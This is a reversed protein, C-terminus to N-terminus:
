CWRRSRRRCRDCSAASRRHRVQRRPHADCAGPQADAPQWGRTRAPRSPAEVEAQADGTGRDLSRAVMAVLSAALRAPYAAPGSLHPIM